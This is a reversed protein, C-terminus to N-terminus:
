IHIHPFFRLDQLLPITIMGFLLTLHVHIEQKVLKCAFVKEQGFTM